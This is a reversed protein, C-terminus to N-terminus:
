LLQWLLSAVSLAVQPDKSGVQQLRSLLARAKARQNAVFKACFIIDGIPAGLVELNPTNSGQPFSNMNGKSFVECKSDNLFLGLHPGLEKLIAIVRVVAKESGAVVGDDMYWKHYLLHSSEEDTAVTAVLKQLVLCFFLPGLLDGQQVGTESSIIGMSHFLRPHQGYCWSAWPMLEPFHSHCEDLLAQRSVLNFANQFDIKLTVFDGDNWHSEICERLGHITSESGGPCAVGM